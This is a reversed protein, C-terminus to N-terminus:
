FRSAIVTTMLWILFTVNSIANYLARKQEFSDQEIPTKQYKIIFILPLLILQILIHIGIRATSTKNKTNIYYFLSNMLINEEYASERINAVLVWVLFLSIYGIIYSNFCQQFTTIMHSNISWEIMFLILSRIIYTGFIFVLRDSTGISLTKQSFVPDADYDQILDKKTYKNNQNEDSLIRSLTNQTERNKQDQGQNINDLDDYTKMYENLTGGRTEAEDKPIKAKTTHKRNRYRDIYDVLGGGSMISPKGGTSSPLPPASSNEPAVPPPPMPSASQSSAGVTLDRKKEKRWAKNILRRIDEKATNIKDLREKEKLYVSMTKIFAVKDDQNSIQNYFNLKDPGGPLKFATDDLGLGHEKRPSGITTLDTIKLNPIETETTM